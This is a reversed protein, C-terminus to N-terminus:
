FFNERHKRLFYACINTGLHIYYKTPELLAKFRNQLELDQPSDKWTKNQRMVMEKTAELIEDSTNSIIEINHNQFEEVRCKGLGMEIVEHLKLIRNKEKCFLIKFMALDDEPCYEVMELHVTNFKIVPRRFISSVYQLGSMVSIFMECTGTLYIDMFDSRKNDSAYDVFNPHDIILPEKVISGMRIVNYGNDLLYKVAPKFDNIDMNRIAHMDADNSRPFTAELYASDRGLICVHPLTPDLGLHELGAKGRAKEEPSFELHKDTEQMICNLDSGHTTQRTALTLEHKETMNFRRVAALLWHYYKSTPMQRSYMAALTRNAVSNDKHCFLDLYDKHVGMDAQCLYLECEIAQHGIRESWIEAVRIRKIPSIAKIALALIGLGLYILSEKTISLPPGPDVNQEQDRISTILDFIMFNSYFNVAQIVNDHDYTMGCVVVVKDPKFKLMTSLLPGFLPHFVGNFFTAPQEYRNNHSCDKQRDREPILLKIEKKEEDALCKTIYNAVLYSPATGIILLRKM